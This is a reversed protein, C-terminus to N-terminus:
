PIPTLHIEISMQRKSAFDDSSFIVTNQGVKASVMSNWRNQRIVPRSPRDTEAFSSIDVTVGLSAVGDAERFKRIDINVGVDVYTFQDGSTPVPVKSGTRISGANDPQGIEARMSYVHSSVIRTGEMDKVTFDVKYAKGDPSEVAALSSVLALALILLKKM